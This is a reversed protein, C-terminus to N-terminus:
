DRPVPMGMRELEKYAVELTIGVRNFADQWIPDFDDDLQNLFAIHDRLEDLMRWRGDENAFSWDHEVFFHHALHNRRKLAENLRDDIDAPISMTKRASQLVYGFTRGGLAGYLDSILEGTIETHGGARLAVALNVVGQEVLQAAFFALGFFAYVEKGDASEPVPVERPM